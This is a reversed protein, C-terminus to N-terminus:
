PEPAKANKVAVLGFSLVCYLFMFFAPMNVSGKGQVKERQRQMRYMQDSVCWIPRRWAIQQQTSNVRVLDM